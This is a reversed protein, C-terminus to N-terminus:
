ITPLPSITPPIPTPTEVSLTTSEPTIPIMPYTFTEKSKGISNKSNNIKNKFLKISEESIKNLVNEIQPQILAALIPNSSLGSSAIETLNSKLTNIVNNQSQLLQAQREALLKQAKAEQQKRLLEVNKTNTLEISGTPLTQIVPPANRTKNTCYTKRNNLFKSLCVQRGQERAESSTRGIKVLAIQAQTLCEIYPKFDPYQQVVQLGNVLGSDRWLAELSLQTNNTECGSIQQATTIADTM